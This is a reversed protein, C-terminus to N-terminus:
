TLNREWRVKDSVLQTPKRASPTYTFGDSTVARQRASRPRRRSRKGWTSFPTRHTPTWGAARYITGEHVAEAQYSVLRHLAPYKARMLRAMVALVRSATNKPADPAIALRRLESTVGDDVAQAMPSSFIAVAYIRGEFTATFAARFGRWMSGKDCRPLVSHWAANLSAATEYTTEEIFLQLASTPISGGGGAHFLPHASRDVSEARNSM